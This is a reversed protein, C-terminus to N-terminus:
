FRVYCRGPGSDQDRRGSILQSSLTINASTGSFAYSEKLDYGKPVGALAIAYEIGGALSFSVSGNEDTKGMDVMDGMTADSYISVDLGAMAMGGATKVNVTYTQTTGDGQNVPAATTTVVQEGEGGKKCGAFVSLVMTLVLLMCLIRKANTM